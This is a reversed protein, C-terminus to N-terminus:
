WVPKVTPSDIDGCTETGCHRSDTATGNEPSHFCSTSTTNGNSFAVCYLPPSRMLTACFPKSM